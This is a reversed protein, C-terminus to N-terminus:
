VGAGAESLGVVVRHKGSPGPLLEEVLQVEAVGAGLRELCWRESRARVEAGPVGPAVEVEIRVRDPVAQVLRVRRVGEHPFGGLSHPHIAQGRLVLLEDSRGQLLTMLPLTRGCRCSGPERLGVDGQRYNLLVTGRNVLNSVIVEGPRGPEVDRGEEDVLRIPAIDENLHLRPGHGCEFGMRMAEVSQYVGLVLVGRRAAAERAAPGLADGGFRAVQLGPAGDALLIRELASGFGSLVPPRLAEIRTLQEELPALFPIPVHRVRLRDPVLIARRFFATGRQFSSSESQVLDAQVYGTLRGIRKTLIRRQREMHAAAAMAAGPSHWVTLPTGSTGSSSLELCDGLAIGETRFREPDAQVDERTVIPLRSLDAFTRIDGATSRFAGSRRAGSRCM